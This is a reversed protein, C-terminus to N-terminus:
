SALAALASESQPHNELAHNLAKIAQRAELADGATGCVEIRPDRELAATILGRMTASDDVVLVRIRSM